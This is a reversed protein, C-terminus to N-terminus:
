KQEAQNAHKQDHAVNESGNQKMDDNNKRSGGQLQQGSEGDSAAQAPETFKTIRRMKNTVHCMKLSNVLRRRQTM